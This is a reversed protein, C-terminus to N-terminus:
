HTFIEYRIISFPNLSPFKKTSFIENSYYVILEIAITLYSEATVVNSAYCLQTLNLCAM